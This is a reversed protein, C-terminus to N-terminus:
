MYFVNVRVAANTYCFASCLDPHQPSFIFRIFLHFFRNFLLSSPLTVSLLPSTLHPEEASSPSDVLSCFPFTIIVVTEWVRDWLVLLSCPLMCMGACVCRPVTILIFLSIHVSIVSIGEGLNIRSVHVLDIFLPTESVCLLTADVAGLSM